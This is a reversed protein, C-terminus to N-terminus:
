RYRGYRVHTFCICSIDATHRGKLQKHLIKKNLRAVLDQIHDGPAPVLDTCHLTQMLRRSNLGAASRSSRNINNNNNNSQHPVLWLRVVSLCVCERM